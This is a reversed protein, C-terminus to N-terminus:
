VIYNVTTTSIVNSSKTIPEKVVETTSNLIIASAIKKNYFFTSFIEKGTFVYQGLGYSTNMDLSYTYNANNKVNGYLSYVLSVNDNPALWFISSNQNQINQEYFNSNTFQPESLYLKSIVITRNTPNKIIINLLSENNKYGEYVESKIQLYPSVYLQTTQNVNYPPLKVTINNIGTKLYFNPIFVFNYYKYYSVKIKNLYIVTKNYNPPINGLDLVTTGDSYSIYNIGPPISQNYLLSSIAYDYYQNLSTTYFISNIQNSVPSLRSFITTNVNVLNDLTKLIYNDGELYMNGNYFVNTYNTNNVLYGSVGYYYPCNIKNSTNIYRSFLSQFDNKFMNQIQLEKDLYGLYLTPNNTQSIVTSNEDNNSTIQYGQENFQKLYYYEEFGYNLFNNNLETYNWISSANKEFINNINNQKAELDQVNNFIDSSNNSSFIINPYSDLLININQNSTTINQNLLKLTSVNQIKIYNILFFFVVFIIIVFLITSIIPYVKKDLFVSYFSSFFLMLVGLIELISDSETLYKLIYQYHLSASNYVLMSSAYSVVPLTNVSTINGFFLFNPLIIFIAISILSYILLVRHFYLKDVKKSKELEKSYFFVKISVAFEVIGYIIIAITGWFILNDLGTSFTLQLFQGLSFMILFIILFLFTSSIMILSSLDLIKNLNSKKPYEKLFDMDVYSTPFLRKNADDEDNM